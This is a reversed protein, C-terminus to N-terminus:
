AAGRQRLIEYLAISGAVAANLSNIAGRMPLSALIDCRERVLRRLGEGESGIVLGLPVTFDISTYLQAGYVDELGVIWLQMAKLHEM